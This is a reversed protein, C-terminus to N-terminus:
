TGFAVARQRTFVGCTCFVMGPSSVSSLSSYSWAYIPCFCVGEKNWCCRFRKYFKRRPSRWGLVIGEQMHTPQTFKVRVVSYIFVGLDNVIIAFGRNWIVIWSLLPNLGCSAAPEGPLHPVDPVAEWSLSWQGPKTISPRAPAPFPFLETLMIERELRTRSYFCNRYLLQGSCLLFVM